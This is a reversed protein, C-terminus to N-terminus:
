HITIRPLNKSCCGPRPSTGAVGPATGVVGPAGNMLGRRTM